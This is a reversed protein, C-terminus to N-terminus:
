WYLVVGRFFEGTTNSQSYDRKQKGKKLGSHKSGWSGDGPESESESTGQNQHTTIELKVLTLV